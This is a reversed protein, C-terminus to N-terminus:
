YLCPRCRAPCPPGPASRNAPGSPLPNPDAATVQRLAESPSGAAARRRAAHAPSSRGRQAGRPAATQSRPTRTDAGSCRQNPIHERQLGLPPDDRQPKAAPRNIHVSVYRVTYTFHLSFQTM